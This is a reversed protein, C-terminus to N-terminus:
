KCTSCGERSRISRRSATAPRPAVVAMTFVPQQQQQEAIPDLGSTGNGSPRDTNGGAGLAPTDLADASQM